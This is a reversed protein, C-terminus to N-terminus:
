VGFRKRQRRVAKRLDKVERAVVDDIAERAADLYEGIADGVEDVPLSDLMKEGRRAMWRAGEMGSRGAQAAGRGAARVMM